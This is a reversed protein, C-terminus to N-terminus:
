VPMIDTNLTKKYTKEFDFKKINQSLIKNIETCYWETNIYCIDEIKPINSIIENKSEKIENISYNNIEKNEIWNM